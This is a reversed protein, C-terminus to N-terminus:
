TTNILINVFSFSFLPSMSSLFFYFITKTRWRSKNDETTITVTTTSSFIKIKFLNLNSNLFFSTCTTTTFSYHIFSNMWHKQVVVEQVKHQRLLLKFKHQMLIQELEVVVGDGRRVVLPYPPLPSNTEKKRENVNDRKKM